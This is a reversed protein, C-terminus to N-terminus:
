GVYETGRLLLVSAALALVAVAALHLEGTCSLTIWTLFLIIGLTVKTQKKM